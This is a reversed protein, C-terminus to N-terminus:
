IRNADLEFGHGYSDIITDQGKAQVMIVIKVHEIFLFFSYASMMQITQKFGLLELIEQASHM